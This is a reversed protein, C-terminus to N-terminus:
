PRIQGLAAIVEGTTIDSIPNRHIVTVEGRPAWRDPDTPGFLVVGRAGAAAALHSVGSDVGVFRRAMRAIAAVTGLPLEKLVRRGALGPEIVAEAPGLVFVARAAEEILDALALFSTLPWNKANSGSGPFIAIFGGRGAVPALSQEASRLDEPTLDLTRVAGAPNEGIEALYAASMHGPADPRFRHFSAAGPASSAILAARFGPDDASFFSYIRSFVGFFERAAGIEGIGGFLLSVERRDISHARSVGLRGVALRALEERAMLELQAGPHRRLIACFAPALCILDGLAGPFIVLVRPAIKGGASESDM